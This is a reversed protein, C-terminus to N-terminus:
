GGGLRTRMAALMAQSVEAPVDRVLPSFVRVLRPLPPCVFLTEHEVYTGGDREEVRYYSRLFWQKAADGRFGKERETPLGADAVMAGRRSVSRCDAQRPPLRECRAEVEANYVITVVKRHAFQGAVITTDTGHGIVRSRRITPRFLDAHRDYDQLMAVVTDSTAGPVFVIAVAHLFVADAWPPPRGGDSEHLSEAVVDGRRLRRELVARRTPAQSDLWLLHQGARDRRMRAESAAVYREFFAIVPASVEDARLAAGHLTLLIAVTAVRGPSRMPPHGRDQWLAGIM